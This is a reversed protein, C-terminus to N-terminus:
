CACSSSPRRSLETSKPNGNSVVGVLGNMKTSYGNGKGNSVDVTTGYSDSTYPQTASATGLDVADFAPDPEKSSLELIKGVLFEM